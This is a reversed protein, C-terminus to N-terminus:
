SDNPSPLIDKWSGNFGSIVRDVETQLEEAAGEEGAAVLEALIEADALAAVISDFPDLVQKLTRTAAINEQAAAQDDWFQPAAAAVELCRLEDRRRNVELYAEMERLKEGYKVLEKTVEEHM